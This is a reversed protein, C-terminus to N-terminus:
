MGRRTKTTTTTGSAKTNVATTTTTIATTTTATKTTSATKTTTATKTTNGDKTRNAATATKTPEKNTKTTGIRTTGTKTTETGTTTTSDQGEGRTRMSIMMFLRIKRKKCLKLDKLRNKGTRTSPSETTTKDKKMLNRITIETMTETGIKMIERKSIATTTTNATTHSIMTIGDERMTITGKTNKALTKKEKKPNHQHNVKM